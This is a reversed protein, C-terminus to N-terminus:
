LARGTETASIGRLLEFLKSLLGQDASSNRWTRQASGKTQSLWRVELATSPTTGKMARASFKFAIRTDTYGTRWEYFCTRGVINSAPQQESIQVPGQEVLLV